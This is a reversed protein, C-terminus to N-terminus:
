GTANEAPLGAATMGGGGGWVRCSARCHMVGGRGGMVGGGGLRNPLPLQQSKPRSSNEGRKEMIQM